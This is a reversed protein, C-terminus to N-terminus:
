SDKKEAFCEEIVHSIFNERIFKGLVALLKWPSSKKNFILQSSWQM